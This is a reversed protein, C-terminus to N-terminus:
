DDALPWLVATCGSPTWVSAWGFCRRALYTLQTRDWSCQPDFPIDRDTLLSLGTPSAKRSTHAFLHPSFDLHLHTVLALSKM